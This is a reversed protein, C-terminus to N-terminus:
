RERKTVETIRVKVPISRTVFAERPLIIPEQEIDPDIPDYRANDHTMVLM